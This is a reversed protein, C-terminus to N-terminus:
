AADFTLTVLVPVGVLGEGPIPEVLLFVSEDAGGVVDTVSLTAAGAASTTFILAPRASASVEAGAGTEAMTYAAAAALEANGDLLQARCTIAEAVDEGAGDQLQIAVAIVDDAEAAPTAVPRRLSAGDIQDAIAADVADGIEEAAAQWRQKADPSSSRGGATFANHIATGLAASDIAM